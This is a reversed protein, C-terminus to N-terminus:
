LAGLEVASARRMRMFGMCAAVLSLASATLSLWSDVTHRVALVLWILSTALNVWPAIQTSKGMEGLLILDQM